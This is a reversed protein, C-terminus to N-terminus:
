SAEDDWQWDAAPWPASRPASAPRCIDNTINDVTYDENAIIYDLFTMEDWPIMPLSQQTQQPGTVSDSKCIENTIYDMTHGDIIYDLITMQEVPGCPISPQQTQQPGKQTSSINALTFLHADSPSSQLQSTHQRTPTSGLPHVKRTEILTALQIDQKKLKELSAMLLRQSSSSPPSSHPLVKRKCPEGSNTMRGAPERPSTTPPPLNPRHPPDVVTSHNQFSRPPARPAWPSDQAKDLQSNHKRRAMCWTNPFRTSLPLGWKAYYHFEKMWSPIFQRAAKDVHARRRNAAGTHWPQPPGQFQRHLKPRANLPRDM